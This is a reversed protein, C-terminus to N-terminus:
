WVAAVNLMGHRHGTGHLWLRAILSYISNLSWTELFDSKECETRVSNTRSLKKTFQFATSSNTGKEMILAKRCMKESEWLMIDLFWLWKRKVNLFANSERQRVSNESQKTPHPQMQFPKTEGSMKNSLKAQNIQRSNACVFFLRLYIWNLLSLVNLTRYTFHNKESDFCEFLCRTYPIKKWETCKFHLANDQTCVIDDCWHTFM